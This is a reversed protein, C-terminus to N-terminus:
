FGLSILLYTSRMESSWWLETFVHHFWEYHDTKGTTYGVPM